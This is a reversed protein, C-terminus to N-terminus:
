CWRGFGFFPNQGKGFTDEFIGFMRNYLQPRYGKSGIGVLAPVGRSTAADTDFIQAGVKLRELTQLATDYRPALQDLTEATYGRRSMLIGFALDACLQKLIAVRKQKAEDSPNAAADTIFGELIDRTYQKGQQCHSDIDSAASRIASQVTLYPKSAPNSLDAIVASSGTDSALQLVRRQDYYNPLESPDLYSLSM